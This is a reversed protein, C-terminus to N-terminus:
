GGGAPAGLIPCRPNSVGAWDVRVGYLPVTLGPGTVRGIMPHETPGETDYVLVGMARNSTDDVVLLAYGPRRPFSDGQFEMVLLGQEYGVTMEGKAAEGKGAVRAPLSAPLGRPAEPVVALPNRLQERILGPSVLLALGCAPSRPRDTSCAVVALVAPLTAAHRRLSITM